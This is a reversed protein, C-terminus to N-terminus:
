LEAKTEVWESPLQGVRPGAQQDEALREPGPTALRVLGVGPGDWNPLLCLSKLWHCSRTVQM